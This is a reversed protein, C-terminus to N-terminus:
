CTPEDASPDLTFLEQARSSGRLAYRGVSVFREREAPTLADVFNASLLVERDVSRCMSAIRGVENVAPGIVTFDLRDRSGINGYFVDGIHLGLYISTVPQDASRRRENLSSLRNRLDSEARLACRCAEIAEDSKFIALTGDGMLKLVDGNAGHIASIVAEAYDNLLPLIQDPSTSESIATYSRMDSFWLVASIMEARGRSMHGQLVRRGADRGLYAEVLSNAVRNLSYAKVALSLGPVLSRLTELHDDSFGGPASTSWRTCVSDMEGITTSQDFRHVLAFYDTHGESRLDELITFDYPHGAELRRRLESAGTRLLYHFPSSQWLRAGDGSQSSEYETSKLGEASDIKWSFTRGEYVPHLTDVMMMGQVLPVGVACCRECFGQMLRDEPDGLLGREIVWGLISRKDENTVLVDTAHRGVDVAQKRVTM